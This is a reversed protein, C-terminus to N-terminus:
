YCKENKYNKIVPIIIGVTGSKITTTGLCCFGVDIDIFIDAYDEINEFNVM